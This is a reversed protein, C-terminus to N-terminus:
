SSARRAAPSSACRNASLAARSRAARPRARRPRGRDEVHRPHRQHRRAPVARQDPHRPLIGSVEGLRAHGFMGSAMVESFGIIANLPTRLEHSMNALFRSKTANAEEARNREQAYMQALDALEVAQQKLAAQSAQLDRRHRAASGDNEVLKQEHDKITTIDTGVSVFGGDKTRRESIHLWRGDDLQAEFTQAGPEQSSGDAIRESIPPM